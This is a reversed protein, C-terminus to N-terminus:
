RQPLLVVAQKNGSATTVTMPLGAPAFGGHRPLGMTGDTYATATVRGLADTDDTRNGKVDYGYATLYANDM